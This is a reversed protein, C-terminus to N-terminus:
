IAALFDEIAAVLAGEAERHPVHDVGSLHDGLRLLDDRQDTTTV